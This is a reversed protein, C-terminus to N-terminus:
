DMDPYDSNVNQDQLWEEIEIVMHYDIFSGIPAKRTKCGIKHHKKM